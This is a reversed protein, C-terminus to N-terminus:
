RTVVRHWYTQKAAIQAQYTPSGNYKWADRWDPGAIGRFYRLGVRLQYTPKHAGGRREAERILPPYTLQTLGVGNSVGGQAVHGLLRIVRAHTVFQHCLISGSDCGFVNEFASEQDVLALAWSYPVGARRAELYIRLSYRAGAHKARLVALPTAV